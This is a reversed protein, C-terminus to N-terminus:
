GTCLHTMYTVYGATLYLNAFFYKYCHIFVLM